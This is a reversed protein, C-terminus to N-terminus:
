PPFPSFPALLHQTPIHPEGPGADSFAAAVGGCDCRQEGLSTAANAYLAMLSSAICDLWALFLQVHRFLCTVQYCLSKGGGTPM